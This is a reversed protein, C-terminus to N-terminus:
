NKLILKALKPRKSPMPEYDEEHRIAKILPSEEPKGPVIVESEM